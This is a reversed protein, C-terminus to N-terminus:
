GMREEGNTTGDLLALWTYRANKRCTEPHIGFYDAARHHHSFATFLIIKTRNNM